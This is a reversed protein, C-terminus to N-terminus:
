PVPAQDPGPGQPPPESAPATPTSPRENLHEAKWQMAMHVRTRGSPHDYFVIEELPTPDLKRYEALKLIATAFADPERVANLGFIDAQSENERIISNSLPTALLSFITFLILLIPFGAQDGIDRVGWVGGFLSHLVGFGWGALLFGVGFVLTTYIVFKILHNLVFHGMEHGMVAKVEAPSARRLLNDNLAIRTTGLFGAVNASIRDSQRSADVQFVQQAPVGNARALSLISEKLPGDDMPKYTNFMPEIFVPAVLVGLIIFASTIATAFLPWSRPFARIAAYVLPFIIATQIIGILLGKAQDTLWDPMSMNSLGYAHERYFGEYLTMPFTLVTFAIVFLVGYILTQLWRWPVLREALNRIGTSARTFLLLLAAGITVLADWLILWYGGEFYADSKARAAGTVTALYTDTAAKVDFTGAHALTPLAMAVVLLATFTWVRALM